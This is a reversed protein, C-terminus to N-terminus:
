SSMAFRLRLIWSRGTTTFINRRIFHLSFVLSSEESRAARLLDRRAEPLNAYCQQAAPVSSSPKRMHSYPQSQSAAPANSMWSSRGLLPCLTRYCTLWKNKRYKLYIHNIYVKLKHKRAEAAPTPNLLDVALVQGDLLTLERDQFEMLIELKM